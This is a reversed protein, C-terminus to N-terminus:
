VFFSYLADRTTCNKARPAIEELIAVKEDNPFLNPIEGANLLNNLDELFSEMVLQTDSFLFQVTEEDQGCKRLLNRIDEHFDRDRYSKTIEISFTSMQRTYGALRAMSRRGSGGVGVLMANGREQMLIRSIRALHAICDAFFVLNMEAGNDGANYAMLLEDLRPILVDTPSLKLYFKEPNEFEGFIVDKFDELEWDMTLHNELIKHSMENFKKRDPDGILRDRFVRYTEAIYLYVLYDKNEIDDLRCMLMGQIVKSIDRLNFTYHCKAPTPLFETITQMYIEVCAKVIQEAFINM